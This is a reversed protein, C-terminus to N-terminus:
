YNNVIPKLIMTKNKNTVFIVLCHIHFYFNAFIYGHIDM